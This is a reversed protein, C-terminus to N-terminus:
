MIGRWDYWFTERSVNQYSKGGFGSLGARPFRQCLIQRFWAPAAKLVPEPLPTKSAWFRARDLCKKAIQEGTHIAPVAEVPGLFERWKAATKAGGKGTEGLGFRSSFRRNMALPCDGALARLSLGSIHGAEVTNCV